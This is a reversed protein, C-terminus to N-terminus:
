EEQQDFVPIEVETTTREILVLKRDPRERIFKSAMIPCDFSFSGYGMRTKAIYEKKPEAVVPKALVTAM